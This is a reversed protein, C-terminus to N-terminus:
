AGSADGASPHSVCRAPSGAGLGLRTAACREVPKRHAAQCDQLLCGARSWRPDGPLEIVDWLAGVRRGVHSSAGVGSTDRVTAAGGSCTVTRTPSSQPPGNPTRLFKGGGSHRWLRRPPGADCAWPTLDLALYLHRSAVASAPAGGALATQFFRGAKGVEALIRELACFIM